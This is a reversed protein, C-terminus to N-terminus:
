PQSQQCFENKISNVIAHNRYFHTAFWRVARNRRWIDSVCGNQCNNTCEKTRRYIVDQAYIQLSLFFNFLYNMAWLVSKTSTASLLCERNIVRENSKEIAIANSIARFSRLNHSRFVFNMAISDFCPWGISNRQTTFISVNKYRMKTAFWETRVSPALSLWSHAYLRLSM